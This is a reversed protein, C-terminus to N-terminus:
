PPPTRVWRPWGRLSCGGLTAHGWAPRAARASATRGGRLPANAVVAVRPCRSTPWTASSTGPSATPPTPACRGAGATRGGGRGGGVRRGGGAGGGARGGEGGAGG